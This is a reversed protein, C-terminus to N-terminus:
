GGTFCIGAVRRESGRNREVGKGVNLESFKADESIKEFRYVHRM